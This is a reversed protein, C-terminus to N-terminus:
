RFAPNKEALLSQYHASLTYLDGANRYFSEDLTYVSADTETDKRPVYSKMEEWRVYNQAGNSEVVGIKMGKLPTLRAAFNKNWEVMLPNVTLDACFCQVGSEYAYQAMERTVTLTKAIPKLTMAGYGQSIRRKVDSLSHISEDAAFCVPLDGVNIDSDPPFPEEFLVTNEAIGEKEFHDLLDKLQEKTEYRGNADFYYAIRGNETYPTSFNKLVSHIQSAREKDWALMKERDGDGAPDSGLKIKFLCVNNEAMRAVEELSTSYNVLPVNALRTEKRTGRFVFDFDTEGNLRAFLQWAAMDLPVLANLVFTETVPFGVIENAYALCAPFVSKVVDGPQSFSKGKIMDVAYETVAFMLRNSEDEGFTTFVRSDSWLVSQIGLGIGITNDASLGVVTQWVGTLKNGKFGFSNQFTEPEYAAATDQILLKQKM